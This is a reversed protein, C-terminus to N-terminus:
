RKRQARNTPAAELPNDPWVHKPYRGKLDKRVEFYTDRWFSALDQTVQVPRHAPSLLHLTLPLRGGMITPTQALGFMEQLRVALVPHHPNTYDIPVRSGSPVVIHTPLWQELQQKQSWSLQTELVHVMNLNALESKSRKGVVFPTVWQALTDLLSEDDMKPFSDDYPAIFMCRQQLQRAQKTWPLLTLRSARIAEVVVTTLQQEDPCEEVTQQLVLAGLKLQKLARVSQTREDWKVLSHTSLMPHCYTLLEQEEFAVASRIRSDVADDELEVAVVYPATALSDARPLTAGRGSSLLYRGDPRRQGIRDPFALALLWGCAAECSTAIRRWDDIKHPAWQQAQREVRQRQAAYQEEFLERLQVRVDRQRGGLSRESLMAVLLCAEAAYQRETARVILHALRPHVGITALARGHDTVKVQQHHRTIAQLQELMTLAQEYNAQPPPTLWQLEEPSAGWIALELALPVLDTASMEPATQSNLQRHYEETWCRYSVGPAERGARGSRQDASAVSVPVTVLKSMATRASFQPVRSLGSDIVIRVGAITVSSEALSTSLIIKRQGVDAPQLARQQGATTLTGYLPCIMWHQPLAMALLLSRVREIEAVGPLFVLADGDHAQMAEYTTRAVVQEIPLTSMKDLYNIQVPYSKGESRVLAVDGMLQAVPEADLTASMVILRLDDRLLSQSQLTLALALDSHLHREHYEDFIIAGVGDLAADNQLMRTLIGETVVEIRTQKSVAVDLKVRYGVTQGVKEGLLSAMFIAANRAAIRRPELMIIRQQGLWPANLLALPVATTKGSGPPAIVIVNRQFALQAMVEPLVQEIPLTM